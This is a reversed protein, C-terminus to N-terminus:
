LKKMDLWTKVTGTVTLGKEDDIYVVSTTAPTPDVASTATIYFTKNFVNPKDGATAAVIKVGDVATTMDATLVEIVFKGQGGDDEKYYETESALYHGATLDAITLTTNILNAPVTWGPNPAVVAGSPQVLYGGHAARWQEMATAIAAIHSQFLAGRADSITGEMRPAAIAAILGIIAIVILLEMLTFGKRRM